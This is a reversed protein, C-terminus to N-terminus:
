LFLLAIAAAFFLVGIAEEITLFRLKLRAEGRLAPLLFRSPCLDRRSLSGYDHGLGLDWRGNIRREDSAGSTDLGNL